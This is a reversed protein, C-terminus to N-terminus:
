GVLILGADVQAMWRLAAVAAGGRPDACDRVVRARGDRAVTLGSPGGLAVVGRVPAARPPDLPDGKILYDDLIRIGAGALEWAAM